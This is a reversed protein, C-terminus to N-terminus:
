SLPAEESPAAACTDSSYAFTLSVLYAQSEGTGEFEYARLAEEAKRNLLGYGSSQIRALDGAINGDADVIVGFTAQGALKRPCAETPYSPQLELRKFDKGTVQSTKETWASLAGSAEEKSTGTANFAYLEQQRQQAERLRAIAAAPIKDPRAGPTPPPTTPAAAQETGEPLAPTPTPPPTQEPPNNPTPSNTPSESPPTTPETTSPPTPPPTFNEPAFAELSPFQPLNQSQLAQSNQQIKDLGSLDEPGINRGLSRPAESTSPTDPIPIQTTPVGVPAPLPLAPSLSFGSPPPPFLPINYPSSSASPLSNSSQLSPLSPFLNTTKPLPPLSIQPAAFSPLRSQEAPTLEVLQVPRQAESETTKSSLPLIPLVVWLLGHVGVSALTAIGTPQRLVIPLSKIFSWYSM